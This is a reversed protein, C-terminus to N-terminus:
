KSLYDRMSTYGFAQLVNLLYRMFPAGGPQPPSQQLHQVVTTALGGSVSARAPRLFTQGNAAVAVRAAGNTLASTSGSAAVASSASTLLIPTNPQLRGGSPGDVLSLNSVDPLSGRSMRVHVPQVSFTLRADKSSASSNAPTSLAASGNSSRLAVQPSQGM